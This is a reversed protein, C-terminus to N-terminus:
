CSASLHLPLNGIEDLFLTGRNRHRSAAAAIAIPATFAGEVIASYSAKSCTESIAGLDVSIFPQSARPSLRHIERAMLEKGTGSEGL